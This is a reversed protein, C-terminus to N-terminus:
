LIRVVMNDNGISMHPPVFIANGGFIHLIVLVFWFIEVTERAGMAIKV